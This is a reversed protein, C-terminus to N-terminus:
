SGGYFPTQAVAAQAVQPPVNWVYFCPRSYGPSRTGGGGEICDRLSVIKLYVQQGPVVQINADEEPNSLYQQVAVHYFGPRVDLYFAGRPYSVGIPTGNMLIYPIEQSDYPGAERYFWLRAEGQPIPPPSVPEGWQGYSATAFVLFAALVPPLWRLSVVAKTWISEETADGFVGFEPIEDIIYRPSTGPLDTGFLIPCCRDRHNM